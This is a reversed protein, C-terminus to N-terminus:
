CARTLKTILCMFKFMTGRRPSSHTSTSVAFKLWCVGAWDTPQACHPSGACSSKWGYEKAANAHKDSSRFLTLRGYVLFLLLKSVVASMPVLTVDFFM